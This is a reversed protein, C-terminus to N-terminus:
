VLGGALFVTMLAPAMRRDIVWRLLPFVTQRLVTMALTSAVVRLAVQHM